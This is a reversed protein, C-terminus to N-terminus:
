SWYESGSTEMLLSRNNVLDYCLCSAKKQITPYLEDGGFRQFPAQLASELLNNDRM